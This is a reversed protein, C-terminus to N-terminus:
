LALNLTINIKHISGTEQVSVVVGNLVRAAKDGASIDEIAPVTIVTSSPELVGRTEFVGVTSRIQTEVM